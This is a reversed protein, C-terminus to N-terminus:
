EAASRSLSIFSIFVFPLSGVYNSARDPSLNPRWLACVPPCSKLSFLIEASWIKSQMPIWNLWVPLTESQYRGCILPLIWAEFTRDVCWLFIENRWWNAFFVEFFFVTGEERQLYFSKPYTRGTNDKCSTWSFVKAFHTQLNLFPFITVKEKLFCLSQLNTPRVHISERARTQNCQHEFCFSNLNSFVPRQKITWNMRHNYLSM